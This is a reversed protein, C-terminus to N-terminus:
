GLQKIVLDGDLGLLVEGNRGHVVQGGGAGAVVALVLGALNAGNVGEDLGVGVGVELPAHAMHHALLVGASVM